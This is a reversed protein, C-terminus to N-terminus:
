SKKPPVNLVSQREAFLRDRRQAAEEGGAGPGPGREEGGLAEDGAGYGAGRRDSVEDPPEYGEPLPSVPSGILSAGAGARSGPHAGFHNAYGARVADALPGAGEYIDYHLALGNTAQCLWGRKRECNRGRRGSAARGFYGGFAAALDPM